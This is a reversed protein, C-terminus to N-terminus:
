GRMQITYYFEGNSEARTIAIDDLAVDPYFTSLQVLIDKRLPPNAADVESLGFARYMVHSGLQSCFCNAICQETPEFM